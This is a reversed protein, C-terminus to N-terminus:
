LTEFANHHQKLLTERKQRQSKLNGAETLVAGAGHDGADLGVEVAAHKHAVLGHVAEAEAHANPEQREGNQHDVGLVASVWACGDVVPLCQITSM